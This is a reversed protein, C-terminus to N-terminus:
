QTTKNIQANEVKKSNWPYSNLIQLYYDRCGNNHQDRRPIKKLLWILREVDREYSDVMPTYINTIPYQGWLVSKATVESFGDHPLPRLGCQMKKIEENMQEKPVRGHVIVNPHKTQWTAGYLHFEIMPVRDAIEEVLGFGYEIQRGENASLYVKNGQVFEVDYDEIKGLFSPIVTSRIGECSLQFREEENEVYSECNMDIWRAFAKPDVRMDGVEDLWYGNRFHRIDSGAWLIAKRGKHKWLTIFDPLGYLGFFVTPDIENEYPKTGWVNEPTDELSGLSPAYRCQWQM